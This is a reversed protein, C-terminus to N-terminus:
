YYSCYIHTEARSLFMKYPHLTIVVSIIRWRHRDFVYLWALKSALPRNV